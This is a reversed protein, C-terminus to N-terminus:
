YSMRFNILCNNVFACFSDSVCRTSYNKVFHSRADFNINSKIKPMLNNIAKIFEESTNCEIMCLNNKIYGEFAEKTGIITKGYMLAEATKTKMGSGSFIPSVVVRSKSYLESLDEVFGIVTVRGSSVNFGVKEMGKGAICMKGGIYPLVNKIFWKCGEVNAFFSSGLFLYDYDFENQVSYNKEDFKDDFTTPLIFDAKRGYHRELEDSDRSNLVVMRDTYETTMREYYEVKKYYAWGRLDFGSVKLKDKFFAFEANHFFSVIPINYNQKLFKVYSGYASYSVFVFDVVNNNLCNKIEKKKLATLGMTFKSVLSGGDAELYILKAEFVARLLQQNRFNIMDGGNTPNIIERGIYLINM